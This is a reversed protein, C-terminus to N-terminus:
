RPRQRVYSPSKPRWAGTTALPSVTRRAGSKEALKEYDLLLKARRSKNKTRTAEIRAAEAFMANRESLKRNKSEADFVCFGGRACLYSYKTKDTGHNALHSWHASLSHPEGCKVCSGRLPAHGLVGARPRSGASAARRKPKRRKTTKTKPPAAEKAGLRAMAGKLTNRRRRKTGTKPPSAKKAELKELTSALTASKKAASKKAASKKAAPKKAASKKAASKKAAPKKAASKKPSKRKKAKAKKAPDMKKKGDAKEAATM